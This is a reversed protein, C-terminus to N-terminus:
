LSPSPDIRVSPEVSMGPGISVDDPPNDLIIKVPVRQVIKVYNGTANEAPLLSFATGSGPQVSAIHGHIEREPYADIDITVPQGPRMADLQTEKFNAVVWIADPVFMSLATGPQAFEGVAASLQVVRGPQAAKVTTYSLNLRAKDREAAAEARTAVASDREAKLSEVQRQAVLLNAKASEVAAQQQELQSAFQQAKEVSGAHVNALDQYRAAEQKAFELAAQLQDLSAKDATIQAQQVDLQANTKAIGADAEALKADAQELAVQYDREDIRAIVGGAALHQNDTVPVATIYGGVEPAIATQRAAIFADDTTEFHAAYDWYLYGAAALVIVAVTSLAVAAPHRRLIGKPHSAGDDHPPQTTPRSPEPAEAKFEGNGPRKARAPASRADSPAPAARADGSADSHATSEDPLDHEIDNSVEQDLAM